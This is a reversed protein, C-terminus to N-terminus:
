GEGDGDRGGGGRCWPAYHRRHGCERGGRCWCPATSTATDVEETKEGGPDEATEEMEEAGSSSCADKADLKEVEAWFAAAHNPPVVVGIDVDKPLGFVESWCFEEMKERADLNEGEAAGAPPRNTPRLPAAAAAGRNIEM